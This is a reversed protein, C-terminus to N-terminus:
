VARLITGAAQTHQGASGSLHICADSLQKDKVRNVRNSLSKHAVFGLHAIGHNHAQCHSSVVRCTESGVREDTM